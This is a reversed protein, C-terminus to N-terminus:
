TLDLMRLRAPDSRTALPLSLLLHGTGRWADVVPLTGADLLNYLAQRISRPGGSTSHGHILKVQQRGRHSAARVAATALREAEAITAGHLDLTVTQGDDHLTPYPM